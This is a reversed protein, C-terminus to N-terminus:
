EDDEDEEFLAPMLTSIKDLICTTIGSRFGGIKLEALFQVFRDCTAQKNDGEKRCMLFKGVLAFSTNIGADNLQEETKPGIGPVLTLDERLDSMIFEALKKESVKSKARDYTAM